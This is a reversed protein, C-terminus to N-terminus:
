HSLLLMKCSKKEIYNYNKVKYKVVVKCFVIKFNHTYGTKKNSNYQNIKNSVLTRKTVM